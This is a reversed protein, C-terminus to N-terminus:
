PTVLNRYFPLMNVPFLPNINLGCTEAFVGEGYQCMFRQCSMKSNFYKTVCNMQQQAHELPDKISAPNGAMCGLWNPSGVAGWATEERGIALFVAPNWGKAKAYQMVYDFLKENMKTNPYISKIEKLFEAKKSLITAILSEDYPLTMDCNGDYKKEGLKKITCKGLFLDETRTCEIQSDWPRVAEQIKRLLWGVRAGRIGPAKRTEVLTLVVRKFKPVCVNITKKTLPVKVDNCTWADDPDRFRKQSSNANLGMVREGGGSKIPYRLPIVGCDGQDPLCNNKVAASYNELDFFAKLAGELHEQDTGIPAVVWANVEVSYEYGSSFAGNYGHKELFEKDVTLSWDFPQKAEQSGYDNFGISFDRNTHSLNASTAIAGAEEYPTDVGDCNRGLGNVIAILTKNLTTLKPELCQNLKPCYILSKNITKYDDRSRLVKAAKSDRAARDFKDQQALYEDSSLIRRVMQGSDRIPKLSLTKNTGFDPVRFAAIIPPKIFEDNRDEPNQLFWFVDKSGEDINQTPAIILFAIRYLTDIDIPANLVAQSYILYEKETADFLENNNSQNNNVFDDCFNIPLNPQNNATQLENQKERKALYSKKYKEMTKYLNLITVETKPILRDLYCTSQDSLKSCIREIAAFNDMKVQCQEGLSTINQIIGSSNLEEPPNFPNSVGFFGELSSIKDTLSFAESGRLMPISAQALNVNYNDPKGKAHLVSAPFLEFFREYEGLLKPSIKWQPLACSPEYGQDRVMGDVLWDMSTGHFALPLYNYEDPNKESGRAQAQTSTATITLFALSM